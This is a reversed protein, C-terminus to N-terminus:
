ASIKNVLFRLIKLPECFVRRAGLSFTPGLISSIQGIQPVPPAPARASVAAIAASPASAWRIERPPALARRDVVVPFEVVGSFVGAAIEIDPPAALIARAPVRRDAFVLMAALTARVFGDSRLADASFAVRAPSASARRPLLAAFVYFSADTRRREAAFELFRFRRM